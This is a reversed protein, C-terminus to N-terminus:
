PEATEPPQEEAKESQSFHQEAAAPLPRQPRDRDRGFLRRMRAPQRARGRRYLFGRACGARGASGLSSIATSGRSSALAMRARAMSATWAALEPWGPMGIPM